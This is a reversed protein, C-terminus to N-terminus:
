RCDLSKGGRVAEQALYIGFDGSLDYRYVAPRNEDYDGPDDAHAIMAYDGDDSIGLISAYSSLFPDEILPRIDGDSLRDSSGDSLTVVFVRRVRYRYRGRVHLGTGDLLLRDNGAWAFSSAEFGDPLFINKVTDGTDPSVISLGARIPFERIMALKSGDPSLKAYRFISQGALHTTALLAPREAESEVVLDSFQTQGIIPQAALQASVLGLLMLFLGAAGTGWTPGTLWTAIKM